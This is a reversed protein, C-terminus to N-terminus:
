KRQPVLCLAWWMGIESSCRWIQSLQALHKRSRRTSAYFSADAQVAHALSAAQFMDFCLKTARSLIVAPVRMQDQPEIAATELETVESVTVQASLADTPEVQVCVHRSFNSNAASVMRKINKTM